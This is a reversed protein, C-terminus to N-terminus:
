VYDVEIYKYLCSTAGAGTAISLAVLFVTLWAPHEPNFSVYLIGGIFFLNFLTVLSFIIGLFVRLKNM